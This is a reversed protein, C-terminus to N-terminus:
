LLIYFTENRVIGDSVFTVLFLSWGHFLGSLNLDFIVLRCDHVVYSAPIFYLCAHTEDAKLVFVDTNCLLCRGIDLGLDCCPCTLVICSLGM